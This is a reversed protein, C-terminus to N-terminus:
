PLEARESSCVRICMSAYVAGHVYGHVIYQVYVIKVEKLKKELRSYNIAIQSEREYVM